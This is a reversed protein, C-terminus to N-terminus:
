RAPRARFGSAFGAMRFGSPIRTLAVEQLSWDGIDYSATRIRLRGDEVVLIASLPESDGPIVLSADFQSIPVNDAMMPFDPPNGVVLM